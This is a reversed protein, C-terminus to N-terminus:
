RGSMFYLVRESDKIQEAREIKFFRGFESEFGKITYDIFVDERTALLKRVKPDSKPVFEIILSQCIGRLFEAIRALPLNNSIALHHVIALAMVLDVPGRQAINQREENAWGIGPSPNTLDLLLPLVRKEGESVVQRFNKEVCAPDIDFAVTMAGMESALRSHFGNNAGIDWVTSPSIAKLYECVIERKHELASPLYSDDSYYDAWETGNPKWQLRRVTWELSDLLGMLSNQSVNMRLDSKSIIADSYRRQSKAHLHIHLLLTSFWTRLPLLKSTLDLPIGDIHNRMLQGLRIDTHSMLALPALFQQCFQRYPTWPLGEKYCEFSLTDIFVPRGDMFQINYASADKLSMGFKLAARQVALTTLAADKLQSFCWEYPYSIFPIMDPKIIRYAMEPSQSQVDAVESHSVLLGKGTLYEYLGSDILCDYCDSYCRNIQRYISNDAFFVFGGPDRFSGTNREALM